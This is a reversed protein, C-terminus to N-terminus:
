ARYTVIYARRWRATTNPGSAHLLRGHFLVVDGAEVPIAVARHIPLRWNPIRLEGLNNIGPFLRTAPGLLLQKAKFFARQRSTVPNDGTGTLSVARRLLRTLIRPLRQPGLWLDHPLLELHSGPIVWLCGAEVSAQDLPTWASLVRGPPTNWYAADQHFGLEAGSRPPKALVVDRFIQAPGELLASVVQQVQVNAALAAFPPAGAVQSLKLCVPQGQADFRAFVSPDRPPGFLVELRELAPAVDGALAKPLVVYGRELYERKLQTLTQATTLGM